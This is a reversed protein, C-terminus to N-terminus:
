KRKRLAWFAVIGVVAIIVVAIIALETATLAFGETVEPEIPGSPTVQPGVSLYTADYSQWYSETGDFTAMITYLGEDPPTWEYVFDGYSNSTVTGLEIYSGDEGFAELKVPVGNVNMPCPKQMYLYEMWEAMYEDAIAPTDKAGSSQDTVMGEILVTSGKAIVKSSSTVTTATQGKGFCYIQQDYHNLTVLYGDAIAPGLYWGHISWINGGTEANICLMKAGRSLPESPSHENTFAYIKGDAIAPSGYYPYTGYPTEFGASGIYNVWETIGTKLDYCYVRGDYATSYLNGYAALPTNPGGGLYTAGFIGWANEKPESEWIRRGTYVDYGETILSDEHFLTFVGDMIPGFNSSLREGYSTINTVWMQQGTNSNYGIVVLTYPSTTTVLSSAVIMDSSIIGISQSGPVDPVTVSWEIGDQWDLTAGAPPRWCWVNTGTTGALLDTNKSSNWMTLLNNGGNLVYILMDGKENFRIWSPNSANAFSCIWNGTNADYMHYEDNDLGWLYPYIGHQNPTDYQYLQGNTLYGYKNFASFDSRFSKDTGNNWWLEEGTRLDVCYFGFRPNDPTNYYLRGHMIIPPTWKPEYSLGTYYGVTGFEGGVIGGFSIPKTWVIHPTNPAKTYPNFAGNEDYGGPRSRVTVGLWNGSIRWWERNQGEIPRDWYDEPLPYDTFSELPDQQVTVTVLPSTSPQYYNENITQGPFSFQFTYTGVTDPTYAFWQASVGDATYPGKTEKSGNPKTIEIEYGKFFISFEDATTPRLKDIWFTVLLQQGVGIPDPVVSLFAYTPIDIAKVNPVFTVFVTLTLLLILAITTIKTKKQNINM